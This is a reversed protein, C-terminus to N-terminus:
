CQRAGYLGLLAPNAILLADLAHELTMLDPHTLDLQHSYKIAELCEHLLTTRAVDDPLGAMVDMTAMTMDCQGLSITDGLPAVSRRVTYRLGGVNISDPLDSM